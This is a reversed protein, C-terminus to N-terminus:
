DGAGIAELAAARDDYGRIERVLGHEVLFVQIVSTRREPDRTGPPHLALQCAVGRTGVHTAVVDGRVGGAALAAYTALAQERTRCRRDNDGDGWDVDVALLAGLRALDAGGFALRLDEAIEELSLM